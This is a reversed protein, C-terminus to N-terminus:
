KEQFSMINGKTGGQWKQMERSYATNALSM